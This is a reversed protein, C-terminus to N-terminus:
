DDAAGREIWARIQEIRHTALMSAVPMPDGCSPNRTAVKELLLSADPEGPVVRLLGSSACGQGAAPAGVLERYADDRSAQMGSGFHM